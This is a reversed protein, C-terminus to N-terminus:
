DAFTENIVSPPSDSPLPQRWGAELDNGPKGDADGLHVLRHGSDLRRLVRDNPGPVSARSGHRQYLAGRFLDRAVVRSFGIRIWRVRRAPPTALRVSRASMSM